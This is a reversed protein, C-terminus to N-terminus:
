HRAYKRKRRVSLMLGLLIVIVVPVALNVTQITLRSQNIKSSDLLRLRVDKSRAAILGSDDCLYNITNLIFDRNGFQQRTYQDFGLPLPYGQSVHLQNRIVDGDSVVIMATPISIDRFGILPDDQIQPPIRNTFVSRFEGELLVAVPLNAQDFFREDPTEQMIALDILVPSQFTKSYESSTLLITKRVAPSGVTDISSIFTTMVANLNNVVPHKSRSFIVPSYYWPKFDIQPQDGIMGTVVRIPLANLDLILDTNLRVGYNFLMDDLNLNLGIGLTQNSSELSDMTAYVPDILWLVKGGQMIYQDIIFKDKESFASDPQVIIIASYKNRILLSGDSSTDRSTLSSIKEDIRVREVKYFESLAGTIDAEFVPELEGHGEIFAVAPKIEATLKRIVSSINYELAQISNNLIEEPRQGIQTILLEMPLEISRYSVIAGPFITQQTNGESTKVELETPNLGKRILEQYFNRVEQANGTKSPNIFEYQIKNSYARFEDLTEKTAKSLQKFGAPFDGDLYVKFYVIDDTARLLDKTAESLSYRREATLDIRTFLYSGIINIFLIIVLGLGFRVFSNMKLSNRRLGPEWKRSELSIRCLILFVTIVSVFYIVDRTDIVGRSISTYHANLGLSQIFLDFPGFLALSAILEFGIYTIGCLFVGLIFAVIQNDSVSSAFLGIAVFCAGLMLLGLYSGWTSGTDMNGAPQGLLYVTAFYVLTPLLSIIVLIVGAYYKALLIQMETLPRTLILEITGSRREEAFSRMTIAPILFLFVFPATIFLSELSAYGFDLINFEVPFVWLFLGNVLLFVTIVVYGILSYLFGNIEKKFLAFM